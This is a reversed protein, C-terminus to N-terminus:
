VDQNRNELVIDSLTKDGKMQIPLPQPDFKKGNWAIVGAEQLKRMKEYLERERATQSPAPLLHGVAEGDQTITLAEGDRVRALYADLDRQLDRAEVEDPPADTAPM